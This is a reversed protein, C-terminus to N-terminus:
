FFHPLVIFALWGGLLGMSLEFNRFLSLDLLPQELIAEVVLFIVFSFAAVSLLVIAHVSSFGQSQEVTMGLGFSGLSLTAM